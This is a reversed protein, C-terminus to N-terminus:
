RQSEITIQFTKARFVNAKVNDFVLRFEQRREPKLTSARNGGSAVGVLQGQEDFLAIAVGVRQGVGSLNSVSVTANVLDAARMFRGGTSTPLDFRVSDIRLGDTGNAGVELVIGDKFRYSKSLLEADAGASALLVIALLAIRPLHHRM